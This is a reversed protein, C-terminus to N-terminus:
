TRLSDCALDFTSSTKKWQGSENGSQESVRRSYMPYFVQKKVVIGKEYKYAGDDVVPDLGLEQARVPRLAQDQDSSGPRTLWQRIFRWVFAHQQKTNRCKM